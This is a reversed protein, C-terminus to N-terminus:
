CCLFAVSFCAGFIRKRDLGDSLRAFGPNKCSPSPLICTWLTYKTSWWIKYVPNCSLCGTLTQATPLELTDFTWGVSKQILFCVWSQVLSSVTAFPLLMKRQGTTWHMNLAFTCDHQCPTLPATDMCAHRKSFANSCVKRKISQAM